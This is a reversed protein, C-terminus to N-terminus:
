RRWRVQTAGSRRCWAAAWNRGTSSGPSGNDAGDAQIQAIPSQVQGDVRPMNHGIYWRRWLNQSAVIDKGRWALMAILPTRVEEGPKLFLHTLEQGEKIRLGKTHDREFSSRWQGPWGVALIVGGGPIQLNYYPWGSTGDCSKGSSAPAFKKVTDAFLTLQYPQYSDETCWDGKIGNLIFESEKTKLLM